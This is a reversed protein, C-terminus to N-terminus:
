DYWRRKKVIIIKWPFIKDWISRKERLKQKYKEIAGRFLEEEYERTAQEIIPSQEIMIRWNNM